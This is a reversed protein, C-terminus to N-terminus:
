SLMGKLRAAEKTLHDKERQNSAQQAAAKVEVLAAATDGALELLRGRVAHLRFHDGLRDELGDLLRLAQEPAGSTGLAAARNLRVMPNDTLKELLRYLANIQGWDTEDTSPAQDHVAAIAAQLQYEGARQQQLAATILAVGESILARDWLSRDQDDLLVLEGSPGTRAPRRAETLLMLALLGAVEPDAPLEAHVGRTLRIAEGSLEARALERGESAAYGENFMLYLVHLVSRVREALAPGEDPLAFPEADGDVAEAVKAKARSIRQAMTAEPVLFAAAIERTTLGCVARLTLPIAAGPRLAPHCCLFLLVLSDDAAPAPDAPTDGLQTSAVVKEERRLRAQGAQHRDAM